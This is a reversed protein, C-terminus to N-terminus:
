LCVETIPWVSIKDGLVTSHYVTNKRQTTHRIEHVTWISSCISSCTKKGMPVENNLCMHYVWTYLEMGHQKGSEWMRDWGLVHEETLWVDKDEVHMYIMDYCQCQLIGLLCPIECNPHKWKIGFYKCPDIDFGWRHNKKVMVSTTLMCECANMNMVKTYLLIFQMVLPNKLCICSTGWLHIILLLYWVILLLHSIDAVATLPPLSFMYAWAVTNMQAQFRWLGHCEPITLLTPCISAFWTMWSYTKWWTCTSFMPWVDMASHISWVLIACLAFVDTTMIIPLMGLAVICCIRRCCNTPWRLWHLAESVWDDIIVIIKTLMMELPVDSLIIVQCHHERPHEYRKEWTTKQWKM